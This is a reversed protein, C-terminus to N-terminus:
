YLLSCMFLFYWGRGSYSRMPLSQDGFCSDSLLPSGNHSTKTPMMLYTVNLQKETQCENSDSEEESTIM